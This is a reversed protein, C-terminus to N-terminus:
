GFRKHLSQQWSVALEPLSALERSMAADDQRRHMVDHARAVSWEPHRREILRLEQGACIVGERLVRLYWGTRGNEVVLAALEKLRWRRGLKWCPQRPQSVELLAEGVSWVDGICVTQEDLGEITLNEGFGGSAFDLQSLEERWLEYHSAAYALVAKDLGGHHELDAQQDGEIGLRGVRVPGQVPTKFIASTWPRALPDDAEPRGRTAITGIQVSNLRPSM